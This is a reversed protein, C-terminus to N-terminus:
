QITQRRPNAGAIPSFLLTVLIGAVLTSGIWSLAPMRSFALLGFSLLTTTACAAIAAATGVNNVGCERIFIGYNVGVGTVILLAMFTLGSVPTGVLSALPIAWAVGVLTPLMVTLAATAGHRLAIVVWCLALVVPIGIAGQLRMTGLALTADGLKDVLTVGSTGSALAQLQDGPAPPYFTILHAIGGEAEIRLHRFPMAASTALVEGATLAGRSPLLHMAQARVGIRAM